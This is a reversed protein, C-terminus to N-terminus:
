QLQQYFSHFCNKKAVLALLETKSCVIKVFHVNKKKAEDKKKEQSKGSPSLPWSRIITAAKGNEKATGSM